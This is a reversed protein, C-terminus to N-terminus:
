RAETQSPSSPKGALPPMAMVKDFAEEMPGSKRTSSKLPVEYPVDEVSSAEKDKPQTM